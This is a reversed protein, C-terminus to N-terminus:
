LQAPLDGAPEGRSLVGGGSLVPRHPSGDEKLVPCETCITLVSEETHATCIDDKPYDELFVYDRASRNGRPDKACWETAILGSDRCYVIPRMEAPIPYDKDPLNEHLPAM